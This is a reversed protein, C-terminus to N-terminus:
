RRAMGSPKLPADTSITPPVPPTPDIAGAAERVKGDHGRGEVIFLFPFPAAPRRRGCVRDRTCGVLVKQMLYANTKARAKQHARLFDCKGEFDIVQCHRITM